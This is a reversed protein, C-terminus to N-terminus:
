QFSKRVNEFRYYIKVEQTARTAYTSCNYFYSVREKGNARKYRTNARRLAYGCDPCKVMKSLPSVGESKTSRVRGLTTRMDFCKEWDERSVIPEHMDRSIHWNEFPQRIVKQNKYSINRHKNNAVDGCYVPNYLLALVSNTSWKNVRTKKNEIGKKEANYGSPSSIGENNLVTAIARYSMKQLRM